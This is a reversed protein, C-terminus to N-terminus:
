WLYVGYAGKQWNLNKYKEGGGGKCLPVGNQWKSGNQRHLASSALCLCLWIHISVSRVLGKGIIYNELGDLSGWLQHMMLVFLFYKRFGLGM